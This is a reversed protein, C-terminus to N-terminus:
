DFNINKLGKFLAAAKEYNMRKPGIAFLMIREGGVEYDGAIVALEDSKTVPSKRGIFVDLFDQRMFERRLSALRRDIEEFDRIIQMMSERPGWDLHEMLLDLGEKEINASTGVAAALGLERTVAALFNRLDGAELSEPLENKVQRPEKRALVQRVFFEYGRNTPVRGAAHYPQELYGQETLWALEARIMAPKIGFNYNRFLEGSSVPEGTEIFESVAAELIEFSRKTM